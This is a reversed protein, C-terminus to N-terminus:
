TLCVYKLEEKTLKQKVSEWIKLKKEKLAERKQKLTLKKQEEDSQHKSVERDFEKKFDEEWLWRTPFSNNDGYPRPLFAYDGGVTIEEKYEDLDFEGGSEGSEYGCNGYDFWGKKTVGPIITLVIESFREGIKSVVENYKRLTIKPDYLSEFDKKTIIHKNM